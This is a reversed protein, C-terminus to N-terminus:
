TYRPSLNNNNNENLYNFIRREQKKLYKEHKKYFSKTMRKARIM